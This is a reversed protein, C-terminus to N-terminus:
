QVRAVQLDGIRTRGDARYVELRVEGNSDLRDKMQAEAEAPTRAPPPGQFDSAYIYGVDAVVGPDLRVTSGALDISVLEPQPGAVTLPGASPGQQPSDSGDDRAVAVGATVVSIAVLAAGVAALSQLSGLRNM